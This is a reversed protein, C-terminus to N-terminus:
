PLPTSHRTMTRQIVGMLEHMKIPKAIYDDMGAELCAERDGKLAHATMAIIPLHAPSIEEERIRRTADFGGMVPMQVDMLVLDFPERRVADVAEQGDQAIVVTHGERKLMHLALLRNVENDEALLIRLAALGNTPRPPPTPPPIPLASPTAVAAPAPAPDRLARAVSERLEAQRIPKVLFTSVGLQRCRETDSKRQSSTLMMITSGALSQDQRIKEAVEFGDLGPMHLDLLVLRFPQGSTRMSTLAALARVGGDVGMPKMGWRSTTAALLRRNTANDDVILVSVGDLDAYADPNEPAAETPAFRATFTFTSGAGPASDVWIRGGMLTVLKSSITLGLGTGGYRRTTSGDAQTFSEFILQQKEPPSGVGTDTVSFAVTTADETAQELRARVIIEGRDTFKVANGILNVLIQRVRGSDGIVFEPLEPALDCTLELRKNDALIALTRAADEVAARLNFPQAEFDLKGAEIKSFDLVDNIVTLLTDASARVTNLYERQEDSLDTDLALETMGLIGNMPTRIEHSMNALFESKARSADEARVKAAVLAANANRLEATREAVEEELHERHQKLEWDRAQIQDLMENFGSILVGIEDNRGHPARISFDQEVSLRRTTDALQRIPQSIIRQLRTSLLLVVILAAVLVAAAVALHSNMRAKLGGLDAEILLV